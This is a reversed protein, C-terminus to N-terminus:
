RWGGHGGPGGGMGGMGMGSGYITSDQTYSGLTEGNTLTGGVYATSGICTSDSLEGGVCVNYTTGVIIDPTSFTISGWTKSASYSMIVNDQEDTISVRVNSLNGSFNLLASCQTSDSTVNEAM